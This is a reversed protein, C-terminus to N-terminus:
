MVTQHQIMGTEIFEIETRIVAVAQDYIAM